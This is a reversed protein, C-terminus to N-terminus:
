VVSKRDVGHGNYHVVVRKERAFHRLSGVMAKVKDVSPDQAQKFLFSRNSRATRPCLSLLQEKLRAAVLEIDKEGKKRSPNMWAEESARPSPPAGPPLVRLNLALIMGM